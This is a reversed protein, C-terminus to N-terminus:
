SGDRAAFQKLDNLHCREQLGAKHVKVLERINIDRLEVMGPSIV